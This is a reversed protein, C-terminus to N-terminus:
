EGFEDRRIGPESAFQGREICEVISRNMCGSARLKVGETHMRTLLERGASDIFTVGSIDAAIQKTGALGGCVSAVWVRELEGVWPGSLKGELKFKKLQDTEDVTIKLV